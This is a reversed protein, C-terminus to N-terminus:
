GRVLDLVDDVVDDIGDEIAEVADHVRHGVEDVLMEVTEDFVDEAAKNVSSMLLQAPGIAELNKRDREAAKDSKPQEAGAHLPAKRRKGLKSSMAILASLSRRQQLDTQVQTDIMQKQKAALEIQAQVPQVPASKRRM